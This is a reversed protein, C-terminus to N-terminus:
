RRRLVAQLEDAGIRGANFASVAEAVGMAPPAPATTMVPAPREPREVPRPRRDPRAVGPPAAAPASPLTRTADALVRRAYEAATIRGAAYDVLARAQAPTPATRGDSTDGLSAALARRRPEDLEDLLDTWHATVVGKIGVVASM